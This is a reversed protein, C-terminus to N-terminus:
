GNCPALVARLQRREAESLEADPQARRHAPIVIPKLNQHYEVMSITITGDARQRIRKGCYVFDDHEVSGFGLSEGLSLLSEQARLNGGLLLDDVHSLLIGDLTTRDESWLLWCAYDLCSREWGLAELDQNLRLYWQRPADSLGFVGKCIRALGLAPFPLLPEGSHSRINEMYLERTGALFPDGKMFASKVDTSMLRWAKKAKKFSATMIFLMHQSIRSATPADKRISFAM